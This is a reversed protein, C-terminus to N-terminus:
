GGLRKMAAALKAKSATYDAQYTAAFDQLQEDTAPTGDAIGNVIAVAKPAGNVFGNLLKETLDLGAAAEPAYIKVGEEVVPELVDLVPKMKAVANNVFATVSQLNLSM